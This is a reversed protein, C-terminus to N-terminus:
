ERRDISASRGSGDLSDGQILLFQAAQAAGSGNRDNKLTRNASKARQVVSFIANFMDIRGDL